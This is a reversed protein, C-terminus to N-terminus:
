LFWAVAFVALMAFAIGVKAVVSLLFGLGAALGARTAQRHGRRALLEGLMAGVIPGLIVGILGGAIGVIAGIVAGAVALGSAGVRKVGLAAALYDVLWALVALAGLGAVTVAGVNAFGDVWAILWLGGFILPTGPLLPLVVGALGVVIVVVAVILLVTDIM